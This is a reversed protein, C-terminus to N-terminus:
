RIISKANKLKFNLNNIKINLIFEDLYLLLKNLLNNIRKISFLINNIM